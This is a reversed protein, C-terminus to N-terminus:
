SSQIAVLDRLLARVRLDDDALGGHAEGFLQPVGRLVVADLVEEAPLGGLLGDKVDLFGRVKDLAVGIRQAALISLRGSELERRVAPLRDLRRALSVDRRSVSSTQVEVWSGVSPLADLEHLQRVEVDRVRSLLHADLREKVRLLARADELAVAGPLDAPVAACVADVAAVLARVEATLVAPDAEVAM